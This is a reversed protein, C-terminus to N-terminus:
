DCMKEIISELFEANLDDFSDVSFVRNKHGGTLLLLEGEDVAPGIGVTLIKVGMNLVKPVIVKIINEQHSQGDTVIIIFKAADLSFTRRAQHFIQMAAGLVKGTATGGTVQKLRHIETMLKAKGWRVSDAFNFEERWKHSYQILGVRALDSGIELKEVFKGVFNLSKVFDPATVSTSGDLLVEVDVKRPMGGETVVFRCKKECHRGSFQGVCSCHAGADNSYCSGGHLCPNPQCPDVKTQCRAGGWGEDCQCVAQRNVVHCVGRSGCKVESCPDTADRQCIYRLKTSCVADNWGHSSELQQMCDEHTWHILFLRGNDPMGSLWRGYVPTGDFWKFGGGVKKAGVWYGRNWKTFVKSVKGFVWAIKPRKPNAELHQQVFRYIADLQDNVLQAGESECQKRAAVFDKYDESFRFCVDGPGTVYHMPCNGRKELDTEYNASVQLWASSLLLISFLMM